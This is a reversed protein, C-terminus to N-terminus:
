FEEKFKEQKVPDAKELTYTPKTYSLNLRYLITRVGRESYEVGFENKIWKQIIPATWNMQSKFGVDDPVKNTITDILSKEEESTLRKPRGSGTKYFLGNIGGNERFSKAYNFVSARKKGIVQAIEDVPRGQLLMLIAQYRQLLRPDETSKILNVMGQIVVAKENESVGVRKPMTLVGIGFITSVIIDSISRFHFFM